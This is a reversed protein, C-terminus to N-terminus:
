WARATAEATLVIGDSWPALADVSFMLTATTRIVVRATFGDTTDVLVVAVDDLHHRAAAEAVAADVQAQMRRQALVVAGQGGPDPVSGGYYAGLDLSDAADLALEDAVHILRMRQLHVSTAVATVLVVLLAVVIFGLTLLSINGEDTTAARRRALVGTM